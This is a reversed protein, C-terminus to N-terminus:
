TDLRAASINSDSVNMTVPKELAEPKSRDYWGPEPEPVPASGRASNEAESAESMCYSSYASSKWSVQAPRRWRSPDLNPEDHKAFM